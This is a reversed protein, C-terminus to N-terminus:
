PKWGCITAVSQILDDFGRVDFEAVVPSANYPTFGFYMVRANAIQRALAVGDPAFLAQKDSSDFWQQAVETSQDFGLHVTHRDGNQEISAASNTVVFM